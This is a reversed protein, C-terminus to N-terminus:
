AGHTFYLNLLATCMLIIRAQTTWSESGVLAVGPIVKCYALVLAANALFSIFIYALTNRSLSLLVQTYSLAQADRSDARGDGGDGGGGGSQLSANLQRIKSIFRCGLSHIHHPTPYPSAHFDFRAQGAHRSRRRVYRCDWYVTAPVTFLDLLAMFGVISRYVLSHHTKLKLGYYALIWYFIPTLYPLSDHTPDILRM